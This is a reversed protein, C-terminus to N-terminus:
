NKQCNKENLTLFFIHTPSIKRDINQLLLLLQIFYVPSQCFFFIYGLMQTTHNIKKVCIQENRTHRWEDEM